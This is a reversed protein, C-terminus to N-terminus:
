CGWRSSLSRYRAPYKPQWIQLGLNQMIQGDESIDGHGRLDLVRLQHLQDRDLVEVAVHEAGASHDVLALVAANLTQAQEGEVAVVLDGDQFGAEAAISNPVPEAFMPKLAQVGVMYM